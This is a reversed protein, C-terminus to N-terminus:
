YNIVKVSIIGIILGTIFGIVYGEKYGKFHKTEGYEIIARKTDESIRM